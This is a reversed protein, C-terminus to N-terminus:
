GSRNAFIDTIYSFAVPSHVTHSPDDSVYGIGQGNSSHMISLPSKCRYVPLPFPFLVAAAPNAKRIAPFPNRTKKECNRLFVGLPSISANLRNSPNTVTQRGNMRCLANM